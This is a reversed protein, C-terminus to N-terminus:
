YRMFTITNNATGYSTWYFTLDKGEVLEVIENKDWTGNWTTNWYTANNYTFWVHYLSRNDNATGTSSVKMKTYGISKYADLVEHPYIVKYSPYSDIYSISYSVPLDGIKIAALNVKDNLENLAEAVNTIESGDSASWVPRFEIQNAFFNYAFVTALGGSLIVGLIFTFLSNKLMKKM